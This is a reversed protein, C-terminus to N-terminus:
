KKNIEKFIKQALISNGQSTLHIYDTFNSNTKLLEKVPDVIIVNEHDGLEELNKNLIGGMVAWFNVTEDLNYKKIFYDNEYKKVLDEATYNDIDSILESNFYYAFKVLIVKINKKKSFNIIELLSDKYGSLLYKKSIGKDSIPSKLYIKNLFLNSSRKYVKFMFRYTMINEQLFYNVKLLENKNLKPDAYAGDYMISNRNTYIIIIDPDYKYAEVFFLQKIFNLSKGAFGMNIVEYNNKDKNLLQELQSPYTLNDASELGLTTSGGFAIIRKKNKFFSFEKGRFGKSNVMYEINNNSYNGPVMRDNIYDWKIAYEHYIKSIFKPNFFFKVLISFKKEKFLIIGQFLLELFIISLLVIFFNILNKKM